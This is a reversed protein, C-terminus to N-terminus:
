IEDDEQETDKKFIEMNFNSWEHRFESSINTINPVSLLDLIIKNKDILSKIHEVLGKKSDDITYSEHTCIRTIFKEIALDINTDVYINLIKWPEFHADHYCEPTDM